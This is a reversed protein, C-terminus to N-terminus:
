GSPAPLPCSRLRDYANRVSAPAPSVADAGSLAGDMWIRVVEVLELYEPATRSDFYAGCLRPTSMTAAIAGATLHGNTLGSPDYSLIAGRDAYETAAPGRVVYYREPLALGSGALRSGAEALDRQAATLLLEADVPGCVSPANGFCSITSRTPVSEDRTQPVVAALIIAPVVPIVISASIWKRSAGRGVLQSAGLCGVLIAAHLVLGLVAKTPSRDLGIMTGSSTAVQFAMVNQGALLPGAVLTVGAAVVAAAVGKVLRGTVVGVAAAAAYVTM